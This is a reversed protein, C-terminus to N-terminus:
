RFYVGYSFLSFAVINWPFLFLLQAIWGRYFATPVDLKRLVQHALLSYIVHWVIITMLALLFAIRFNAPAFITTATLGIAIILLIVLNFSRMPKCAEILQLKTEDSLIQNNKQRVRINIFYGVFLMAFGLYSATEPNM